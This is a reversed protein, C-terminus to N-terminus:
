EKFDQGNHDTLSIQFIPVPVKLVTASPFEGAENLTFRDPLYRGLWIGLILLVTGIFIFRFVKMNNQLLFKASM